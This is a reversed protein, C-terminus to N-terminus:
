RPPAACSRITSWCSASARRARRQQRQAEAERGHPPDADTPEIFTRGVYHNRIIGFDFPIGAAEAFGIAAPVGSDPVPVVIDADAPAERALEAGIRKRVEYVSTGDVISDPRAFYVHEFICFRPQTPAFPKRRSSATARHHGGDRGARGRARLTAGIIDLACTESALVPAGDLDGLLLPRVGLPDRCGIM